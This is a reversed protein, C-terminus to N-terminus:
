PVGPARLRGIFPALDGSAVAQALLARWVDVRAAADQYEAQTLLNQAEAVEVIGTLGADYRARAQTESQRAAALQIPTNQAIALAAAVMAGATRRQGTVALAAEDYRASEARTSASAAARRARVGALDFVNPFVVQVGTAWNAREPALGDAGGEFTGDANAGSGRAFVSSQLYVRPRYTAALVSERTRALDVAAEGSRLVPHPSPPPAADEAPQKLLDAGSVTVTGDAIGLLQALMTHAITLARRAQIARTDAAAREAAARTADAGPRLQNDALTQAAQALTRRRAVDAEAAVIAQQASVVALYAGGVATQVTLRTLDQEARARVVAAEAERVTAGRLGFDFPEWSLLGGVASGWISHASAPLVPGSISPVVSQPPLQGFINNATARNTVWLTDLRPLYMAKAIGVSATSANVEELASRVSPYHDLAYQLAQALSFSPAPPPTRAAQAWATSHALVIALILAFSRQKM